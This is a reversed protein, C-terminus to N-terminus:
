VLTKSVDVLIKLYELHQKIEEVSMQTLEKYYENMAKIMLTQKETLTATEM